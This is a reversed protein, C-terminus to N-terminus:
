VMIRRAMSENLAIKAGHVQLIVNGNFASVVKVDADVVFGLEALHQRIADSGTIKKVTVLEGENVLTIPIM